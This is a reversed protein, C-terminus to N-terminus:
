DFGWSMAVRGYVWHFDWGTRLVSHFDWGFHLVSYYDWGSHLVTRSEWGIRLVTRIGLAIPLVTRIEWEFRPVTPDVLTREPHVLYRYTRYM